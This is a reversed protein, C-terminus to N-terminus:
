VRLPSFLVCVSLHSHHPSFSVQSHACLGTHTHTYWYVASLKRPPPSRVTPLGTCLSREKTTQFASTPTMNSWSAFTNQGTIFRQGTFLPKSFRFSLTFLLSLCAFLSVFTSSLVKYFMTPTWRSFVPGRQVFIVIVSWCHPVAWNCSEIVAVSSNQSRSFGTDDSMIICIPNIGFYRSIDSVSLGLCLPPQTQANAAKLLICCLAVSQQLFRHLM